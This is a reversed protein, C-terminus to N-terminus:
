LLCLGWEPHASLVKMKICGMLNFYLLVEAWEGVVIVVFGLAVLLITTRSGMVRRWCPWKYISM